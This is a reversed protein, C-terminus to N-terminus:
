NKLGEVAKALQFNVNEFLAQFRGNLDAAERIVEQKIWDKNKGVDRGNYEHIHPNVVSMQTRKEFEQVLNVMKSTHRDSEIQAKKATWSAGEMFQKREQTGSALL